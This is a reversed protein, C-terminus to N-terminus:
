RRAGLITFKGRCKSYAESTKTRMICNHSAKAALEGGTGFDLIHRVWKEPKHPLGWMRIHMSGIVKSIYGANLGSDLRQMRVQEPFESTKALIKSTPNTRKRKNIEQLETQYGEESLMMQCQKSEAVVYKSGITRVGHFIWGFIGYGDKEVFSGKAVSGAAILRITTSARHTDIITLQAYEEAADCVTPSQDIIDGVLIEITGNQILLQIQKTKLKSGDLNRISANNRFFASIIENRSLDKPMVVGSHLNEVHMRRQAAIGIYWVDGDEEIIHPFMLHVLGDSMAKAANNQESQLRDDTWDFVRAKAIKAALKKGYKRKCEKIKM